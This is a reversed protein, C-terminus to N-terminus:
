FEPPLTVECQRSELSINDCVLSNWYYWLPLIFVWRTFGLFESPVILPLTNKGPHFLNHYITPPPPPPLFDLRKKGPSHNVSCIKMPSSEPTSEAPTSLCPTRTVVLLLSHYLSKCCILSFLHCRTTCRSVVLPVVLSLLHCCIVALWLSHSNQSIKRNKQIPSSGVAICGLSFEKFM